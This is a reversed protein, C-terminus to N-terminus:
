RFVRNKEMRPLREQYELPIIIMLRTRWSGQHGKLENSECPPDRASISSSSSSSSSSGFTLYVSLYGVQM